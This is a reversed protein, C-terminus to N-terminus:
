RDDFIATLSELGEPMPSNPIMKINGEMRGTGPRIWIVKVEQDVAYGLFSMKYDSMFAGQPDVSKGDISIVTDGEIIGSSRQAEDINTVMFKDDWKVGLRCPAIRCCHVAGQPRFVPQSFAAGYGVYQTVQGAYGQGGNEYILFDPRM